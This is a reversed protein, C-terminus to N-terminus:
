PKLTSLFTKEKKKPAYAALIVSIQKLINKFCCFINSMNCIGFTIWFVYALIKINIVFMYTILLSM